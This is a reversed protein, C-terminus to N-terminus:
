YIVKANCNINAGYISIFYIGHPFGGMKFIIEDNNVSLSNLFRGTVDLLNCTLKENRSNEFNVSIQQNKFDSRVKISKAAKDLDVAVTQSNRFDGNFDVQKLRYYNVKGPVPQEDFFEYHLMKNSTGAGKISGYENFDIGNMSREIRFYDNNNESITIWKLQIKNGKFQNASLSVLEVPLTTITVPCVVGTDVVVVQTNLPFPFAQIGFTISPTRNVVNFGHPLPLLVGPNKCPQLGTVDTKMVVSVTNQRQGTFVYGGDSTHRACRAGMTALGDMSYMRSWQMNLNYDTKLLEAQSGFGGYGGMGTFFFGSGPIEEISSFGSQFLQVPNSDYFGSALLTGTSSLKLAVPYNRQNLMRDKDLSGAVILDGNSSEIIDLGLSFRDSTNNHEYSHAWLLNGSVDTRFVFIDAAHAGATTGVVIFGSDALQKALCPLGEGTDLDRVPIQYKKSWSVNGSSDTKVLLAYTNGLLSVPVADHFGSIIFGNDMCQKVCFGLEDKGTDYYKSWQLVGNDDTKALFINNSDPPWTVDSNTHGTLIYGGYDVHEMWTAMTRSTGTSYIKEWLLNGDVDTKFFHINSNIIPSMIMFHYNYYFNTSGAVAYSNGAVERVAYGCMGKNFTKLFVSTQGHLYYPLLTIFILFRGINKM